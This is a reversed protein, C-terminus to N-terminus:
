PVRPAAGPRTSFADHRVRIMAVAEVRRPIVRGRELGLKRREIGRQVLQGPPVRRRRARPELVPDGDGCDEYNIRSTNHEFWSM